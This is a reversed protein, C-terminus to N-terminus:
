SCQHKTPFVLLIPGCKRFVPQPTVSILKVKGRLHPVPTRAKSLRLEEAEAEAELAAEAAAAADAVGGGAESAAVIASERDAPTSAATATKETAGISCTGDEGAEESACSGREADADDAAADASGDAAVKASASSTLSLLRKTGKEKGKLLSKKHGLRRLPLYRTLPANLYTLLEQGSAPGSLTAPVDADATANM